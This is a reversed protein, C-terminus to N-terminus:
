EEACVGGSMLRAFANDCPEYFITDAFFEQPTMTLADQGNFLLTVQDALLQVFTMDHTAVVVTNGAEAYSLIADALVAAAHADLGKTPEDLLLLEPNTLLLKALALQQQQGGSLDYPHVELQSELGFRKAWAMWEDFTYGCAEQWETLEESVSDCVFLAKPNQPLYAQKAKLTNKVRGSLPKIVGALTKLLTTKGAGNGGILAHLSGKRVSICCEDLVLSSSQSYRVSINHASVVELADELAGVGQSGNQTSCRLSLVPQEGAKLDALDLPVLAGETLRVASTAYDVMTEPNHTAVVVTIGLERNIRFLAHLFNKEAVPDLQATPEDLVMLQPRLAVMSALCVIQKQGGSLEDIRKNFWTEIGFFHAVEAVRKRMTAQDTGLNELGFALEHWVSDCVLQSEPSQSVYGVRPNFVGHSADTYIEDWVSLSGTLTGVPTLAPQLCRLLTSKGSGTNGVILQFAGASVEWNLKNLVQTGDPYLFSLDHACIASCKESSSPKTQTSNIDIPQM